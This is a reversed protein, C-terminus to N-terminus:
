AARRVPAGTSAGPWFRSLPPAGLTASRVCVSVRTTLNIQRSSLAVPRGRCASNSLADARRQDQRRRRKARDSPTQSRCRLPDSGRGKLYLARGSRRRMSNLSARGLTPFRLWAEYALRALDADCAVIEVKLRALLEELGDRGIDGHRATALQMSEVWSPASMRPSAASQLLEAYARAEGEAFLVALLASTDIVLPGSSM